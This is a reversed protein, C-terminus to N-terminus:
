QAKYEPNEIMGIFVIVQTVREQIVFLFPKDVYMQFPQEKKMVAGRSMLVATVAAAEAGKENVELYTKHIIDSIFLDSPDSLKSFDASSDFSKKIGLQQSVKKLSTEFELTFKPMFLFGEVNKFGNLTDSNTSLQNITTDLDGEQKPLIVTTLFNACSNNKKQNSEMYELQVAQYKDTEKYNFKRNQQMMEVNMDGSSSHFIDKKTLEEDFPKQFLGKFYIANILIM